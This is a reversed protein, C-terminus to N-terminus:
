AVLPASVNPNYEPPNTMSALREQIKIENFKQEFTIPFTDKLTRADESNRDSKCGFYIATCISGMVLILDVAIITGVVIELPASLLTLALTAFVAAAILSTTGMTAKLGDCKDSIRNFEATFEQVYSKKWKAQETEDKLSTIYSPYTTPISSM